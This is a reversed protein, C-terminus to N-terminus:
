SCSWALVVRLGAEIGLPSFLVQARMLELVFNLLLDHRDVQIVRM